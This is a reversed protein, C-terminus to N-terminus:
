INKYLIFNLKKLSPFFGHNSNPKEKHKTYIPAGFYAAGKLAKKVKKKM